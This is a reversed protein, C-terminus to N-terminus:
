KYLVDTRGGVGGKVRYMILLLSLELFIVFTTLTFIILGISHWRSIQMFKVYLSIDSETRQFQESFLHNDETLLNM